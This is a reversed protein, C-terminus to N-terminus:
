LWRDLVAALAAPRDLQVLHGAGPVLALEAGPIAAVLRHARDVPIWADDEGWVVLARATLDGLRAEFAATHTEDAQAIQRYFAAQGTEGLWPAVLADLVEPALGVASAGGVCARWLGEPVA